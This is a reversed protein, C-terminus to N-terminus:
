RGAAGPPQAAAPADIAAVFSEIARAVARATAEQTLVTEGSAGAIVARRGRSSLQALDAQMEDWAAPEINAVQESNIVLLPLDRLTHVVGAQALSDDLVAVEDGAAELHSPLAAFSRIVQRASPPLDGAMNAAFSRVRMLGFHALVEALGYSVRLDSFQRRVRDPLRRFQDPHMSDITIVGVVAGRYRAAYTRVYAGGLGHGVMVYPSREGAQDLLRNLLRIATITDRVGSGSESWGLGSRDYACVRRTSRLTDVVWAWYASFGGLSAELVITPGDGDGRCDIHLRRDGVEILRGPAPFAERDAWTAYLQVGAGFAALGIVAVLAVRGWRRLNVRAGM